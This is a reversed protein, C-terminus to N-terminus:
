KRLLEALVVSIEDPDYHDTLYKYVMEPKGQAMYNRGADIAKKIRLDRAQKEAQANQAAQREEPSVYNLEKKIKESGRSVIDDFLDQLGNKSASAPDEGRSMRRTVLRVLNDREEDPDLGYMDVYREFEIDEEPTYEYLGDSEVTPKEEKPQLAGRKKMVLEVAADNIAENGGKGSSLNRNVTEMFEGEDLGYTSVFHRIANKDDEDFEYKVPGKSRKSEPGKIWLDYFHDYPKGHYEEMGNFIEERVASDFGKGGESAYKYFDEAEGSQMAKYLDDFTLDGRIQETQFETPYNKKVWARVNAEKAPNQKKPQQPQPKPAPAGVKPQPAPATKVPEQKPQPKIAVSEEKQEAQKMEGIMKKFNDM